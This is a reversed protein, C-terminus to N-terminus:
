SLSSAREPVTSRLRCLQHCGHQVLQDMKHDIYLNGLQDSILWSARRNPCATCSQLRIWAWARITGATQVCLLLGAPELFVVLPQLVAGLPPSICGLSASDRMSRRTTASCPDVGASTVSPEQETGAAADWLSSLCVRAFIITSCPRLKGLFSQLRNRASLPNSYDQTFWLVLATGACFAPFHFWWEGGLKRVRNGHQRLRSPEDKYHCGGETGLTKEGEKAEVKNKLGGPCLCM